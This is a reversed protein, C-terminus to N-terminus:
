CTQPAPESLFPHRASLYPNLSGSRGCLRGRRPWCLRTRPCARAAPRPCRRLATHGCTSGPPGPWAAGSCRSGPSWPGRPPPSGATGRRSPRGACRCGCRRTCTRGPRRGRALRERALGSCSRQRVGAAGRGVKGGGARPSAWVRSLFLAAFTMKFRACPLSDRWRGAAQGAM